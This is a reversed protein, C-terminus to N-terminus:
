GVFRRVLGIQPLDGLEARPIWRAVDTTGDVEDSLEGGVIRARFVVRVNKQWRESAVLRDAPATLLTDVGLLGDLEVDYGTEERVERIAGEEASEHLDVGGGPLTWLPPDPENWLALLVRDQDDIIVAYAALRTDYETFEAAAGM